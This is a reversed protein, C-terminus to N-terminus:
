VNSKGMGMMDQLGGRGGFGGGPKNHTSSSSSGGGGHKARYLQLLLLLFAAGIMYNLVQSGSQSSENAYKIPIMELPGKGM